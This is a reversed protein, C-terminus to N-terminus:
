LYEAEDYDKYFPSTKSYYRIGDNESIQRCLEASAAGALAGIAAGILGGKQPNDKSYLMGAATGVATSVGLWILYKTRGM